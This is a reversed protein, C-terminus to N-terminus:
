TSQESICMLEVVFGKAMVFREDVQRYSVPPAAPWDVLGGLLVVSISVTLALM